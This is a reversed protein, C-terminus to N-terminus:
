SVIQSAPVKNLGVKAGVEFAISSLSMGEGATAAPLDEIIFKVSQTKQRALDVRWQYLQFEGGYLSEAGYLGAGFATPNSPTVVVQQVITDNFDTCVSVQLQHPSKRAGLIQARRVRQFGQLNAFSFWSTALKLKIPLGADTYLGPTERWISGNSRLLIPTEQWIICDKGYQNTFTGWQGVFYDYVLTLGSQLTFRVQNTDAVLTASTIVENNYAEVPAGIYQVALSRDILYIGKRSQFMLGLPTATISRQDICGCDTTVLISDSLDNNQDTNTPGQGVIFFIHDRKFVLLKDDITSLATIPGGRPDVQKVFGDNFAVPTEPGTLKSYYINLPSTSDVVWLRNRHLQVINNPPAPFNEVEGPETPDLPQTYLKPKIALSSDALNDQYSFTDLSPNNEQPSTLSSARYLIKGDKLTRYIVVQASRSGVKATYNLNSVVLDVQKPGSTIVVKQHDAPASQHINGQNDTWEYCATYYYTGDDLLGPSVSPTASLIPYLHFGHEVVDIGDYMQLFGGSLHLNNALEEHYVSQSPDGFTFDIAVVNTQTLSLSGEVLVSQAGTIRYSYPSFQVADPLIIGVGYFSGGSSVDRNTATDVLSRAIIRADEDLLFVASQRAVSGTSLLPSAPSYYSVPVYPMGNVKFARGWLLGNVQFTLNAPLINYNDTVFCQAVDENGGIGAISAYAVFGPGDSRSCGTLQIADPSNFLVGVGDALTLDPNLPAYSVDDAADKYLVVPGCPNGSLPDLNNNFVTLALASPLNTAQTVGAVPTTPSSYNYARVTMGGNSNNFAVVIFPQVSGQILCADYITYFPSPDLADFSVGSSTLTYVAPASLPASALVNALKLVPAAPNTADVWYVVFGNEVALVRPRSANSALLQSSLISQNTNGDIVSYRITNTSQSDDWAYLQLGSSHTSGDPAKQSYIDKIVSFESVRVPTYSSKDVWNNNSQDYSYFRSGDSILLEDKYSALGIGGSIVTSGSGAVGNGIVTNGRRKQISKTKTFVANELELLKGAEVQKEDTKTDVGQALPLSITQRQLM